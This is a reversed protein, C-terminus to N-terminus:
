NLQRTKKTGNSRRRRALTQGDERRKTEIMAEVRPLTLFASFTRAGYNANDFASYISLMRNKLPGAATWGDVTTDAMADLAGLLVDIAVTIDFEAQVSQRVAPNAEAVLTGWYKYESCVAVLRPSASAETGVGIVTKGYERLRQVLPSYDGDGAVLIYTSIEPHTILAEMADVAMRIDAANKQQVGFRKVQILDIGNLALAEQYPAFQPQGWDAYARRITASGRQQCLLKLAPASVAEQGLSPMDRRAGIALNEFDFFVAVQEPQGNSM